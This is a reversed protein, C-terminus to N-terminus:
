KGSKNGALLQQLDHAAKQMEADADPMRAAHQFAALAEEFRGSDQYAVGLNFWARAPAHRMQVCTQLLKLAGATDDHKLKDLAIQEVEAEANDSLNVWPWFVTSGALGLLMAVTLGAIGQGKRAGRGTAALGLLAGLGAGAGHAVNAVPMIKTVTLVLCLFFWGAFTQNTQRDVAGAFRPDRQEVVWLMAWLGYGVGSLGVGGSFLTYEALMSGFALVLFIGLCKLHGYVREVLTGFTWLWYLNFALHMINVHPLTSTLARWLEWKEWVRANMAVADVGHGTWWLVSAAMAGVAITTTVPYHPAYKLSTPALMTAAIGAPGTGGAPYVGRGCVLLLFGIRADRLQKCGWELGRM